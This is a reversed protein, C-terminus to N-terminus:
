VRRSAPLPIKPRKTTNKLNTIIDPQNASYEVRPPPPPPWVTYRSNINESRTVHLLAINIANKYLYFSDTNLAVDQKPHQHQKKSTQHDSRHKSFTHRNQDSRYSQSFLINEPLEPPDTYMIRVPKIDVSMGENVINALCKFFHDESIKNNRLLNRIQIQIIVSKHTHYITRQIRQTIEDYDSITFEPHLVQSTTPHLVQSTSPHLVQSTPPRLIQSTPPSLLQSTPPSLVQCVTVPNDIEPENTMHRLFQLEVDSKRGRRPNLISHATYVKKTHLSLPVEGRLMPGSLKTEVPYWMKNCQVLPNMSMLEALNKIKKRRIFLCRIIKREDDSIYLEVSYLNWYEHKQSNANPTIQIRFGDGSSNICEQLLDFNERLYKTDVMILFVNILVGISFIRM